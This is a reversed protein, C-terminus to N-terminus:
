FCIRPHPTPTAASITSQQVSLLRAGVQLKPIHGHGGESTQLILRHEGPPVDTALSYDTAHRKVQFIEYLWLRGDDTYVQIVAGLMQRGNQRLSAELMPLFMGARAHSYIYTTGEEYPQHFMSTGAPNTQFM